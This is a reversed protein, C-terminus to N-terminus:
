AGTPRGLRYLFLVLSLIAVGSVLANAIEGGLTTPEHQSPAPFSSCSSNFPRWSFAGFSGRL